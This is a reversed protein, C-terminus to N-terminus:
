NAGRVPWVYHSNIKISFFEFPPFNGMNVAWADSIDSLFTSSTWYWASQVGRFARMNSSSVAEIGNRLNSLETKTPLRWDGHDSGDNLIFEYGGIGISVVAGDELLGARTHACDYDYDSIPRWRRQGGWDAFRL